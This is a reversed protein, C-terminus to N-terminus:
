LNQPNASSNHYSTPLCTSGKARGNNIFPLAHPPNLAASSVFFDSLTTHILTLQTSLTTEEEEKM